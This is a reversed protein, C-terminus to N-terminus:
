GAAVGAEGGALRSCLMEFAPWDAVRHWHDAREEDANYPTELLAPAPGHSPVAALEAPSDEFMVALRLAICPEAKQGRGTNRMERVPIAHRDLWRRAFDLEHDLRATVVFLDHDAALRHLTEVAGPMPEMETTISTGFVDAIMTEYRKRGILPIAGPRMTQARTLTVGWREQAYRMKAGSADAITGDFDLGIRMPSAGAPATM